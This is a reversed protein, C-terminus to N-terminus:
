YLTEELGEVGRYNNSMLDEEVGGKEKYGLREGDSEEYANLVICDAKISVIFHASERCLSHDQLTGVQLVQGM